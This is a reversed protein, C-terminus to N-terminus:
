RRRVESIFLPVLGSALGIGIGVIVRGAILFNFSNASACLFAGVLLPIVNLLLTGKRGYRQALKAGTLSGVAAGALCTSVM